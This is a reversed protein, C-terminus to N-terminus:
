STAEADECCYCGCKSVSPDRQGTAAAHFVDDVDAWTHWTPDHSGFMCPWCKTWCIIAGAPVEERPISARYARDAPLETM